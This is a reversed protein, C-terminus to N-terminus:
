KYKEWAEIWPSGKGFKTGNRLYFEKCADLHEQIAKESIVIEEGLGSFRPKLMSVFGFFTQWHNLYKEKEELLLQDLNMNSVMRNCLMAFLDCNTLAIYHGIPIEHHGILFKM